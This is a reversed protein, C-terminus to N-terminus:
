YVPAIRIFAVHKVNSYECNMFPQLIESKEEKYCVISKEVVNLISKAATTALPATQMLLIWDFEKTLSQLFECCAKSTIKELGFTDPGGSPLYFYGERKEFTISEPDEIAQLLGKQTGASKQNFDLSIVLVSFNQKTLIKALPFIVKPDHPSHFAIIQGKDKCIFQAVKRLTEFDEGIFPEFTIQTSIKGLVKGGLTQLTALSPSFGKMHMKILLYFLFAIGALFTGVLGRLLFYKQNPALAPHAYDLPKSLIQQIHSTITKSELLKTISEMMRLTMEMKWKLFIEKAWQDPLTKMENKLSEMKSQYLKKERQIQSLRTKLSGKEKQDLAALKQDIRDLMVMQMKRMNAKICQESIDAISSMQHLHQKLLEKQIQWQKDLRSIERDSYNSSDQKEDYITCLRSLLKQSGPDTLTPILVSPDFGKKECESVFFHIKEKSAASQDLEKQYKIILEKATEFDVGELEEPIDILSLARKKLIEKRLLLMEQMEELHNKKEKESFFGGSDNELSAIKQMIAKESVDFAYLDELSPNEEATMLNQTLEHKQSLLQKKDLSIAKKRLLVKEEERDLKGLKKLLAIGKTDTPYHGYIATQLLKKEFALYEQEEAMKKLSVSLPSDLSINDQKLHMEEIGLEFQRDAYNQFPTLWFEMRERFGLFGNKKVNDKLFNKHETLIRNWKHHFAEERQELYNIQAQAKTEQEKTLYQKFCHMLENVIDSALLRDKFTCSIYLISNNSKDQEIRLLSQIKECSTLFPEIKVPYAKGMKAKTPFNTIAFSCGPIVIKEGIHGNRKQNGFHVTYTKPSTLTLTFYLPKEGEYSLDRFVFREKEKIEKGLFLRMNDSIRNCVKTILGETKAEAQLGLTQVLPKLIKKSRMLVAAEPEHFAVSGLLNKFSELQGEQEMEEKFKAKSTYTVPRLASFGVISFFLVFFATILQRKRKKIEHKIDEFSFLFEGVAM